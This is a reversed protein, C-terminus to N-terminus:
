MLIKYLALLEQFELPAQPFLTNLENVADSEVPNSDILLRKRKPNPESDDYIDDNSFVDKVSIFLHSRLITIKNYPEYFEVDVCQSLVFIDSEQSKNIECGTNSLFLFDYSYAQWLRKTIYSRVYSLTDRAPDIQINYLYYQFLLQQLTIINLM